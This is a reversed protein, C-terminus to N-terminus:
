LNMRKMEDCSICYWWGHVSKINYPHERRRYYAPRMISQCTFCIVNIARAWMKNREKNESSIM